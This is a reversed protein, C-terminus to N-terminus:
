LNVKIDGNEYTSLNGVSLNESRFLNNFFRANGYSQVRLTNENVKEIVSKSQAAEDISSYMKM